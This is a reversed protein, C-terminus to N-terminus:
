LFYIVQFIKYNKSHNADTLRLLKGDCLWSHPVDPYMERSETMTMIRVPLPERGKEDWKYRSVYHTLEVGMEKMLKREEDPLVDEVVCSIVDDLSNGSKNPSKVPAPSSSRSGNSKHSPRILLERLTSFNGDKEDGSDDFGNDSGESSSSSKKDENTLAVHALWSLSSNQDQKPNAGNVIGKDDEVPEEKIGNTETKVVAKIVDKPTAGNAFKNRVEKSLPCECLQPINWLERAEHVRRGLKLLSDGAIIQTLMLKEQEHPTRNTCMLWSFEDLEKCPECWVKVSGTKRGQLM